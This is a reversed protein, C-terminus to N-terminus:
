FMKLQVTAKDWERVPVPAKRVFTTEIMTIAPYLPIIATSDSLTGHQRHWEIWGQHKAECFEAWHEDYPQPVPLGANVWDWFGRPQTPQEARRFCSEVHTIVEGVAVVHYCVPKDIYGLQYFYGNIKQANEAIRRESEKISGTLCKWCCRKGVPADKLVLDNPQQCTDCIPAPPNVAVPPKEATVMSYMCLMGHPYGDWNVNLGYPGSHSVTGKTGAQVIIQGRSHIDETAYVPKKPNFKDPRPM